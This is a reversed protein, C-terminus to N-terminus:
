RSNANEERARKMAAAFAMQAIRESQEDFTEILNRLAV